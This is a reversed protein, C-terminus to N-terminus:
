FTLRLLETLTIEVQAKAKQELHELRQRSEPDLDTPFSRIMLIEEQPASKSRQNLTEYAARIAKFDEPHSHAPYQRLRAHYAAKIQAPTADATIGLQEYPSSLTAPSSQTSM